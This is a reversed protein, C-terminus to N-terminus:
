IIELASPMQIHSLCCCAQGWLVRSRGLYVKYPYRSEGAAHFFIYHSVNDICIVVQSYMLIKTFDHQDFQLVQKM